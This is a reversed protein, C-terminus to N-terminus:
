AAPSPQPLACSGGAVGLLDTAGGDILVRPHQGRGRLVSAVTTARSGGGCVVLPSDENADALWEDIRDIPRVVSGPLPLDHRDSDFRVDYTAGGALLHTRAAEIDVVTLSDTPRAMRWGEFPLFGRVQEYGIRLLDVTVRDAQTQDHTVLILPANFTTAWSVYALTGKQGIRAEMDPDNMGIVPW